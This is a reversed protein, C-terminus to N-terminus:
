FKITWQGEISIDSEKYIPNTRAKRAFLTGGITLLGFERIAMGNNEEVSLDWDFRVIGSEPFSYDTLPKIFPNTIVTDAAVPETGNTGFAILAVYQGDTDGAVLHAMQFRAMDVILNHEEYKETLIGSRYVRM